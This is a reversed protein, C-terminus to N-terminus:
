TIRQKLEKVFNQVSKLSALDLEMFSCKKGANLKENWIQQIANETSKQNRCAFIVECGHFALSKATEFGIGSNAGTIVAIKGNLDKGHLVQFATSIAPIM